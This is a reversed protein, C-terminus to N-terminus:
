LNKKWTFSFEESKSAIRIEMPTVAVLKKSPKHIDPCTDRVYSLLEQILKVYVCASYSAIDLPNRSKAQEVVERLIAAEEITHKLYYEYIERNNKVQPALIIPDVKYMRPAMTTANSMQAANDVTDKGKLKRLDNKLATIVFVKEEFLVDSRYSSLNAMLVAKATSIEDCDSDYADLDDAQYAVNHTIVSQTVPGKAIGPYPKELMPPRNDGGSLIMFEALTTM